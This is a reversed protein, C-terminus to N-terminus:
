ALTKMFAQIQWLMLLAIIVGAILIILHALIHILWMKRLSGEYTREFEKKAEEPLYKAEERLGQFVITLGILAFLAAVEAIQVIIGLITGLILILLGTYKLIRVKPSKRVEPPLKALERRYAGYKEGYERRRRSTAWRAYILAFLTVFSSLSLSIILEERTLGGKYALFLLPLVFLTLLIVTAAILFGKIEESTVM